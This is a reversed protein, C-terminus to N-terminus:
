NQRVYFNGEWEWLAYLYNGSDDGKVSYVRMTIDGNKVIGLYEGRDASSYANEGNEALDDIIYTIGDIVIFENEAGTVTGIIPRQFFFSVTVCLLLIIVLVFSIVVVRKKAM